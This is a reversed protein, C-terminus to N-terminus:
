RGRLQRIITERRETLQGRSQLDRVYDELRGTEKMMIALILAVIDGASELRLLTGGTRQAIMSFASLADSDSGCLVPYVRVGKQSLDHVETEFYRGNHCTSRSDVVGHPPADGFLVVARQSALRWMLQNAEFPAEEVAEPRDGGGTQGVQEIFHVADAFQATLPQVSTVYSTPADCYDGFAIIGVRLGPVRRRFEAVLEKLRSRVEALYSFM